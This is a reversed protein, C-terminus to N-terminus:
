RHLGLLDGMGSSPTKLQLWASKGWSPAVLVEQGGLPEPWGHLPLGEEVGLM